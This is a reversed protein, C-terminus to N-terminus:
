TDDYCLWAELWVTLGLRFHKGIPQNLGSQYLCHYYSGSYASAPKLGVLPTGVRPM